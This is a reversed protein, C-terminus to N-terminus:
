EELFARTLQVARPLPDEEDVYLWEVDQQNRFWTLQRKAYRRTAQKLQQVCQPLTANGEFYPFMEKYGIAQAATPCQAQNQWVWQAEQELGEQLMADVRADIRHYLVSRDRCTLCLCLSRYPQQTPLAEKQQVTMTRGTLEYLELARLVRTLNNPHVKAAYVADIQALRDHMAQAGQEAAQRQLDARLQANSPEESFQVGRLLSTIYLGTGGVVLPLAGRATIEGICAGARKTFDAVSFTQEPPLIDVLHHPIGAQEQATAKATGIDLGRYIQMSDASIIEGGFQQALAVSLRTKGTATPGGIALVRPRSDCLADM